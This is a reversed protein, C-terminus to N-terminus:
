PAELIQVKIKSKIRMDEKMMKVLELKSEALDIFKKNRNNASLRTWNTSALTGKQRLNSRSKSSPTKSTSASHSSNTLAAEVDKYTFEEESRQRTLEPSKKQRLMAPNWSCWTTSTETPQEVDNLTEIVYAENDNNYENDNYDVNVNEQQEDHCAFNKLCNVDRSAGLSRSNFETAVKAWCAEKQKITVGDTKKNELINKEKEIIDILVVKEAQTFNTM